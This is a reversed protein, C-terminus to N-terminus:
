KKQHRNIDVEIITDRENSRSAKLRVDVSQKLIHQKIVVGHQGDVNVRTGVLPLKSSLEKYGEYEYSLCCKLRGCIGSLRDSGRHVVQQVEAMESTISVFDPLCSKCCLTRGCSGCDGTVKAEDRTGIQTLRISTNFHGSLEKVLERFDVRGDATFAFNYRNADYSIHVDILKMPLNYKKIAEYCFSLADKKQNEDPLKAIDNFDAKRIIQKISKDKTEKAIKKSDLSFSVIKALDVGLETEAIVYDGVVLELDGIFFDYVKDWPIFQAQAILM